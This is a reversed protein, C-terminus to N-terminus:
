AGGGVEEIVPEAPRVPRGALEIRRSGGRALAAVDHAPGLGDAVGLAAYLLLTFAFVFWLGEAGTVAEEVRMYGNVIWPQRGVETVIWGCWM